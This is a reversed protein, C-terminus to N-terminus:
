GEKGRREDQAKDLLERIKKEEELVKKNRLYELAKEKLLKEDVKM